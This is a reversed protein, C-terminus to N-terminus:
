GDVHAETKQTELCMLLTGHQGIRGCVCEQIGCVCEENIFGRIMVPLLSKDRMPASWYRFSLAQFFHSLLQNSSLQIAM